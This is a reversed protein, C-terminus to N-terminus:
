GEVGAELVNTLAALQDAELKGGKERAQKKIANKLDTLAVTPIPADAADVEVRDNTFVLVPM